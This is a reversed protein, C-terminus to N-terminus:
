FRYNISMRWNRGAEAQWYVYSGYSSGTYLYKDALNFVNLNVRFKDHEWFIGGDFKTYDPLADNRNSSWVWTSRDAMFTFGASFGLGKLAGEQLKYNLWANATHKAFGPVKNGITAKSAASTDTKTIQNDTFAYNATLTLGSAIEGRIDLELGQARTQGLQVIYVGTIDSPDTTNNNNRLIRYVSLNTSWKGEAWDRKIGVEMNNGTLPQVDKGDKRVGSQPVFAQDYLAYVSTGPTVSYSLGIRPTFKNKKATAGYETQTVHTYRAALTLRLQNNLFGLEDQVYLGVLSQDVTGYKGARQVLPTTRDWVPYGNSPAGYSPNDFSFKADPRDLNHAQNWDAMYGKDNADIGALIRHHVLGTQVDGNLYMQGYKATSKADWISVSRIMSDAGVAAPWMSSGTGSYDYYSAQAFLKWNDNFKHSLSVTGIKENIYTPEIGPDLTTFERPMVAYGKTSFVYYSGVNSTKVHQHIYEATLTTNEDLKYSIVPAISYRNNYEYARFSKKEQGMLNLRYMLKGQKDLKGDFDLAARYFDYSGMSISAEGKTVGTPKKTVVNYIGAPDGVSMMFGAPGKVFEVHDVFSMDETLPSWYSTIANMGNRFASLRSGRATINTYMDGWHELRMLGSVNRVLGDSMSIIQQDAMVKNSIIQINQPTELLPENLRLTSSLQKTNYASKGSKVIIEQLQLDSVTLTIDVTATAEATVTVPVVTNDYGVLSVELQYNGPKVNDFSFSGDAASIAYKRTGKILVSVASAPNEDTTKIKGKIQGNKDGNEDGTYAFTSFTTLQLLLLFFACATLWRM